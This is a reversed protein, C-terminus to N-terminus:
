RANLAPPGNLARLPESTVAVSYTSPVRGAPVSVTQYWILALSLLPLSLARLLVVM